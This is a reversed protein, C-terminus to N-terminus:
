QFFRHNLANQITIRNQPTFKLMQLLLDLADLESNLRSVNSKLIDIFDEFPVPLTSAFELLDVGDQEISSNNQILDDIDRQFPRGVVRVINEIVDKADHGSFLPQKLTRESRSQLLYLFVCGLSWIDSETSIIRCFVEPPSFIMGNDEPTESEITGLLSKMIGLHPLKVTIQSQNLSSILIKSPLLDRYVLSNEHLSELCLLLQKMISRIIDISIQEEKSDKLFSILNSECLESIVYISQETEIIDHVVVINQHKLPNLTIGPPLVKVAIPKLQDIDIGKFVTSSHESILSGIYYRDRIAPFSSSLYTAISQNISGQSQNYRDRNSLFDGAVKKTIRPLKSDFEELEKETSQEFEELEKKHREIIAQRRQAISLEKTIKSNEHDIAYRGFKSSILSQLCEKYEDELEETTEKIKKFDLLLKSKKEDSALFETGISELFTLKSTIKKSSLQDTEPLLDLGQNKKFIDLEHILHHIDSESLSNLQEFSDNDESTQLYDDIENDSDYNSLFSENQAQGEQQQSSTDDNQQIDPQQSNVISNFNIGTVNPVNSINGEICTVMLSDSYTNYSLHLIPPKHLEMLSLKKILWKEKFKEIRMILIEGEDNGAFLIDRHSDYVMIQSFFYCGTLEKGSDIDWLRISKDMSSSLLLDHKTIHILNLIAGRKHGELISIIHKDQYSFKRIIGDSSGSLIIGRSEDYALSTVSAHGSTSSSSTSGSVTPNNSPSLLYISILDGNIIDWLRLTGDISGSLVKDGQVLLLCKINEKHAISIFDGSVTNPSLNPLQKIFGSNSNYIRIFFDDEATVIIDGDESKIAYHINKKSAVANVQERTKDNFTLIANRSVVISQDVKENYFASVPKGNSIQFSSQNNGM